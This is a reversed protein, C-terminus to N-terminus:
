KSDSLDKLKNEKWWDTFSTELMEKWILKASDTKLARWVNMIWDDSHHYWKELYIKAQFAQELYDADKAIRGELTTKEEYEHFLVKIEEEFPLWTLQDHMVEKEIIKKDKIYRSAIKHFDWIRTEGLDHWVLMAAIKNADAWEMSALIYWIQAANLSHEAVSDPNEVWCLRWWEHKIMKLHFAEFILNTLKKKM